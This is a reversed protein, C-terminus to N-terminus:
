RGTAPRDYGRAVFRAREVFDWYRVGFEHAEVNAWKRGIAVPSVSTLLFSCPTTEHLRRHIERRRASRETPSRETALRDFLRDLKEDAFASWNNGGSLAADSRFMDSVDPELADTFWMTLLADASRRAGAEFFAAPPLKALEVAVGARRAAEQFQPPVSEYVAASQAPYSLTFAARVGARVLVGDAGPAFGAEVLEARCRDADFGRPKAAPDEDDSGPQYPGPAPAAAGFFVHRALRERDFLRDLAVRVRDDGFLPHPRKREPDAPDRVNWFVVSFSPLRLPARWGAALFARDEGARAFRDFDLQALDFEGASFRAYRAVPDAVATWVFREAYYPRMPFPRRRYDDRLAAVMREGPVLEEVRYAGCSLHTATANFAASETPVAHAPVVHFDLGFALPARYFPRRWVARLKRSDLAELRDLEVFTDRKKADVGDQRMMKLTFVYDEATVPRGDEWTVDDRLTWVQSLGDASEEPLAVAGWPLAVVAGGVRDPSEMLLPAGFLYKRLRGGEESERTLANLSRPPAMALRFTGGVLEPDFPKRSWDHRTPDPNEDNRGAPPAGPASRPRLEPSLPRSEAGGDGAGGRFAFFAVVGLVVAGVCWALAKKM